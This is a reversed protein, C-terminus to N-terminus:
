HPSFTIDLPQLLHTSNPHLLIPQIGLQDFLQAIKLSLHCIVGDLFLVVPTVIKVGKVHDGLDSIIELM